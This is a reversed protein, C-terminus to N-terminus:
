GCPLTIFAMLILMSASSGVSAWRKASSATKGGSSVTESAAKTVSQYYARYHPHGKTKLIDFSFIVDDVTVPSGDHFRAEPRITFAVWSRDAPVEMSEAILGYRSFAEDMASVTLTDFLGGLGAAAVGRLTFPNVTDFPRKSAGCNQSHPTRKRIRKADM